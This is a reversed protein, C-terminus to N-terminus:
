EEGLGHYEIPVSLVCTPGEFMAVELRVEDRRAGAEAVAGSLEIFAESGPLDTPPIIRVQLGDPAGAVEINEILRGTRTSVAIAETFPEGVERAGLIVKAPVAEADVVIEAHFPLRLLTPGGGAGVTQLDVCFDLPGPTATTSVAVAIRPSRAPEDFDFSLEVDPTDVVSAATVCVDDPCEIELERYFPEEGLIITGLNLQATDFDFPHAVVDGHLWEVLAPVGDAFRFTLAVDFEARGNDLEAATLRLLLDVPLSQGPPIVATANAATTCECSTEIGTLEIPVDWPNHLHVTWPFQPQWWAEGFDLDAEAITAQGPLVTAPPEPTRFFVAAGIALGVIGVGFAIILRNM